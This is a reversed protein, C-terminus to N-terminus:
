FRRWLSLEVYNGEKGHGASLRSEASLPLPIGTAHLGVRSGQWTDSVEPGFWPGSDGLRFGTAARLNRDSEKVWQGRFSTMWSWNDWWFDLAGLPNTGDKEEVGALATFYAGHGVFRWGGAIAFRTGGDDPRGIEVTGVPGSTDLGYLTGMLGLGGYTSGASREASLYALSRPEAAATAAPLLALALLSFFRM